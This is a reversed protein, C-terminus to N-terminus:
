RSRRRVCKSTRHRHSPTLHSPPPPFTPPPPPPPPPHVMVTHRMLQADFGGLYKLHYNQVVRRHKLMLAVTSTLCFCRVQLCTPMLQFCGTALMLQLAGKLQVILFLLHPLQPDSYDDPSPRHKAKPAPICVHKLLWLVEDRALTLASLAM